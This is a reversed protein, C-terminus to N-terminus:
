VTCVAYRGSSASREGNRTREVRERIDTRMAELRRFSNEPSGSKWPTENVTPRRSRSDSAPGFPAPLVVSSRAIAPSVDSCPPSSAKAFPVRTHSEVILPRWALKTERQAFVHQGARPVEKRELVLQAPELLAHLASCVVLACQPAVRVGLRPELM